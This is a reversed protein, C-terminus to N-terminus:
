QVSRARKWLADVVGDLNRIATIAATYVPDEVSKKTMVVFGDDIVASLREDLIMQCIKLEIQAPPLRCEQALAAIPVHSYPRCIQLLNKELLSDYLNHLHALVIPDTSLTASHSRLADDFQHLSKSSVAEAVAKFADVWPQLKELHPKASKLDLIPQLPLGTVVKCLLLMRLSASGDKGALTFGDLSEIFYSSATQYDGDEAHLWGAVLDLDAIVQPQCYVANANTRAATMAAKAKAMAKLQFLIKAELLHVDVLSVKDDLKRLEKSLASLIELAPQFQGHGALVSALKTQLSQKLYFRRDKQAWEILEKLLASQIHAGDVSFLDLLDKIIKATKARPFQLFAPELSRILQSLMQDDHSVMQGCKFVVEEKEKLHLTSTADSNIFQIYLQLAADKNGAAEAQQAQKLLSGDSDTITTSTSLHATPPTATTSM